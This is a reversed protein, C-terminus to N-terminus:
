SKLLEKSAEVSELIQQWEKPNAKWYLQWSKQPLKHYNRFLLRKKTKGLTPGLTKSLIETHSNSGPCPWWHYCIKDRITFKWGGLAKKMAYFSSNM